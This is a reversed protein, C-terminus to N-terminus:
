TEKGYRAGMRFAQTINRLQTGLTPDDISIDAITALYSGNEGAASILLRFDASEAAVRLDARLNLNRMM